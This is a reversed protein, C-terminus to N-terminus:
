DLSLLTQSIGDNRRKKEFALRSSGNGSVNNEYSEKDGKRNNRFGSKESKAVDPPFDM